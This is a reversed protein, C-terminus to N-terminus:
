STDSRAYNTRLKRMSFILGYLPESNTAEPGKSAPYTPFLLRFIETIKQSQQTPIKKQKRFPNHTLEEGSM